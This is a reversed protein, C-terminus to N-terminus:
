VPDEMVKKLGARGLGKLTEINSRPIEELMEPDDAIATVSAERLLHLM